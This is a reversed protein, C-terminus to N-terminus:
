QIVKQIEKALNAINKTGVEKSLVSVVVVEGNKFKVIGADHYEDFDRFGVKDYVTAETFGAKLADDYIQNKM